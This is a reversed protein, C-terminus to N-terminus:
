LNYKESDIKMKLEEITHASYKVHNINFSQTYNFLNSWIPNEKEKEGIFHVYIYCIKYKDRYGNSEIRDIKAIHTELFDNYDKSFERDSPGIIVYDGVKINSEAQEFTKIYKM